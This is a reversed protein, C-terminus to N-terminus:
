GSFTRAPDTEPNAAIRGQFVSGDLAALHTDTIKNSLSQGAPVVAETRLYNDTYGLWLTGTGDDLVTGGGEWLVQRRTHLFRRRERDGTAAVIVQIERVRRSKEANSMQGDFTAAATGPRASFPFVHADAFSIEEIFELSDDFDRETEGPFGAIVDTTLVLDPVAARADAALQRFGARTCRRAM